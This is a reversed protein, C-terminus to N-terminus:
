VTPPVVVSPVIVHVLSPGCFQRPSTNMTCNCHGTSIYRIRCSRCVARGLRGGRRTDRDSVLRFGSNGLCSFLQSKGMKAAAPLEHYQVAIRRFRQLVGAPSKMLVAYESGHINMKMLDVHDVDALELMDALTRNEVSVGPAKKLAAAGRHRINLGATDESHIRRYQSPIGEASDM